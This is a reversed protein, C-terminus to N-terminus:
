YIFAVMVELPDYEKTNAELCRIRCATTTKADGSQRYLVGATTTTDSRTISGAIVYSASPLAVNFNVTWIGKGDDTVSAINLSANVVMTSGNFNIWAPISGTGLSTTATPKGLNVYITGTSANVSLVTAVEIDYNPASTRTGTLEGATTASLYLLQGATYANTNLGTVVGHVCVLGNASTLIEEETVGAVITTSLANSRALAITPLSSNAGNVYVVQGKAITTGTVNRAYIVQKQAIDITVDGNAYYAPAKVSDKWFLVGDAVTPSNAATNLVLSDIPGLGSPSALQELRGSNVIIPRNNAM